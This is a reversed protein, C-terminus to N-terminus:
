EDDKGYKYEFYKDLSYCVAICIVTISWFICNCM